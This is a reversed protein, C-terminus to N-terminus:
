LGVRGNDGLGAKSHWDSGHRKCTQRNAATWASRLALLMVQEHAHVVSLLVLLALPSRPM